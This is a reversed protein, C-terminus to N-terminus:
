NVPLVQTKDATSNRLVDSYYAMAGNDLRNNQLYITYENKFKDIAKEVLEQTEIDRGNKNAGAAALISKLIDALIDHALNATMIPLVTDVYHRGARENHLTLTTIKQWEGANRFADMLKVDAASPPGLVNKVNNRYQYILGGTSTACSEGVGCLMIRVYEKLGKTTAVDEAQPNLCHEADVASAGCRWKKISQGSTTGDIFTQFDLLGGSKHSILLSKRDTGGEAPEPCNDKGPVCRIVTGIISLLDEKVNGPGFSTWNVVDSKGLMRWTINGQIIEAVVAAQEPDAMNSNNELSAAADEGGGPGFKFAKLEDFAQKFHLGAGAAANNNWNADEKRLGATLSTAIQCSNMAGNNMAQMGAELETMIKNLSPSILDLASKFALAIANSAISRLMAVIQESSIFSFSGGFINWGGCGASVSAGQFNAWQPNMIKNRASMNGGTVVGKRQGISMGPDTNNVMMSFQNNMTDALSGAQVKNPALCLFIFIFFVSVLLRIDKM